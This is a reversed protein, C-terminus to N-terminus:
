HTLAWLEITDRDALPARRAWEVAEGASRAEIIWFATIEGDAGTPASVIRKGSSVGIRVGSGPAPRGAALLVGASALAAAYRHTSEETIASTEDASRLVILFQM